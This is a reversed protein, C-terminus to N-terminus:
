LFYVAQKYDDNNNSSVILPISALASQHEFSFRISKKQTIWRSKLSGVSCIIFLEFAMCHLDWDSGRLVNLPMKIIGVANKPIIWRIRISAISKNNGTQFSIM